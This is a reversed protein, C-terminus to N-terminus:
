FKRAMGGNSALYRTVSELTRQINILDLRESGSGYEMLFDWQAANAIEFLTESTYGRVRKWLARLKEMMAAYADEMDEAHLEVVHDNLYITFTRGMGIPIDEVAQGTGLWAGEFYEWDADNMGLTERAIERERDLLRGAAEFLASVFNAHAADATM